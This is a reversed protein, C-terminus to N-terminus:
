LPGIILRKLPKIFHNKISRTTARTEDEREISIQRSDEGIFKPTIGARRRATRIANNKEV